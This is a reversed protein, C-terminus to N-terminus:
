EGATLPQSPPIRPDPYPEGKEITVGDRFEIKRQERLHKPPFGAKVAKLPARLSGIGELRVPKGALLHSRIAGIM